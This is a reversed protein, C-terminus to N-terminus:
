KSYTVVQQPFHKNLQEVLKRVEARQIILNENAQELETNRDTLAQIRIEAQKHYELYYQVRNRLHEIEDDKSWVHYNQLPCLWHIFRQSLRDTFNRFKTLM